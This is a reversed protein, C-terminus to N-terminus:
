KPRFQNIDPYYVMGISELRDRLRAEDLDHTKVLDDLSKFDNRLATNVLGILLNVEMTEYHKFSM